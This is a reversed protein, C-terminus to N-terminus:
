KANKEDLIEALLRLHLATFHGQSDNRFVWEGDVERYFDGRLQDRMLNKIAKAVERAADQDIDPVGASVNTDGELKAAKAAWEKSYPNRRGKSFDYEPRMDDHSTKSMDTM